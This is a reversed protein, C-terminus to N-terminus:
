WENGDVLVGPLTYRSPHGLECWLTGSSTLGGLLERATKEGINLLERVEALTVKKNEEIFDLVQIQRIATISM